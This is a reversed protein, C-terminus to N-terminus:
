VDRMKKILSCAFTKANELEKGNPHGKNAGGFLKFIRHYNSFGRCSFEGVVEFGKEVLREKLPKHYIKEFFSNRGRTSFVFVKGGNQPLKSVFELLSPDPKAFYIGSGFGVLDFGSLLSESVEKPELVQAELVSAMSQAVKKTNGYYKSVCVLLSKLPMGEFICV